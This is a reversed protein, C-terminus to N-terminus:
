VRREAGEVRLEMVSCSLVLSGSFWGGFSSPGGFDSVQFGSGSVRFGFGSVRFGFGSVLDPNRFPLYWLLKTNSRRVRFGSVRIGL